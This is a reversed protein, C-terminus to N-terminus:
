YGPNQPLLNLNNELETEPIPLLLDSPRWNPKVPDLVQDARGSRKLDFWRHGQETFLEVRREQFIADFITEPTNANSDPLGARNRITNIDALSGNLDGLYARAEARILYQEAVRFRISYELSQAENIDAKYKHAYHLTVTNDADSISSVWQDFRLDGNEFADLLGNTLAYRQGPIAQIILEIAERTNRINETDAKLQWITEQSDKRFVQALDTGLPFTNILETALSTAQDWQEVYLYMRALLAKATHVDVHVRESSIPDSDELLAMAEELDTIIRDYVETEELRSVTNNVTYDTTTVYPVDGYISVLLSHIYARIFLAQGKFLRKEAEILDLSADVGSIIDNAGYILQYAQNWWARILENGPLVNHNYLQTYDSNFGYYDLEDAYIGMATTLGFSGSVMGQQDRMGFYLQALASEVTAPDEFVTKSVLTNKPPEVSVFDSCGILNLALAMLFLATPVLLTRGRQPSGDMNTYTTINMIKM